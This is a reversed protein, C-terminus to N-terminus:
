REASRTDGRLSPAVEDVLKLELSRIADIMEVHRGRKEYARLVRARRVSRMAPDITLHQLGSLASRVAHEAGSTVADPLASSARRGVAGAAGAARSGVRDLVSPRKNTREILRDYAVDTTHILSESRTTWQLRCTGSASRRFQRRPERVGPPAPQRSVRKGERWPAAGFHEGRRVERVKPASSLALTKAATSAAASGSTTATGSQALASAAASTAVKSATSSGLTNGAASAAAKGTCETTARPGGETSGWPCEPM